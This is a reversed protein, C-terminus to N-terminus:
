ELAGTGGARATVAEKLAFGARLAAYALGYYCLALLLGQGFVEAFTGSFFYLILAAIRLPWEVVHVDVPSAATALHAAVIAVPVMALTLVAPPWAAAEATLLAGTGAVLVLSALITWLRRNRDAARLRTQAADAGLYGIWALALLPPVLRVTVPDPFVVIIQISVLVSVAPLFRTRPFLWFDSPRTWASWAAAAFLSVACAAAAWGAWAADPM